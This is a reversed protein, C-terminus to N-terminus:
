FVPPVVPGHIRALSRRALSGKEKVVLNKCVNYKGFYFLNVVFTNLFLARYEGEIDSYFSHSFSFYPGNIYSVSM